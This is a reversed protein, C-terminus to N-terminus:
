HLQTPPINLDVELPGFYIPHPLGEPMFSIYVGAPMIYGEGNDCPEDIREVSIKSERKVMYFAPDPNIMKVMEVLDALTLEGLVVSEGNGYLKRRKEQM